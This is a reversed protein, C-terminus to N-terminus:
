PCNVLVFGGGTLDSVLASLDGLDVADAGNVNMADACCPTFGGGTLYSVLASLDGSDIAGACNVNGRKGVCCVRCGRVWYNTWKKGKDIVLKLSDLGASPSAAQRVVGVLLAALFLLGFTAESFSRFPRLCPQARPCGTASPEVNLLTGAKIRVRVGM